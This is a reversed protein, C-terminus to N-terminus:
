QIYFRVVFKHLFTKTFVLFYYERPFIFKELQTWNEFDIVDVKLLFTKGSM